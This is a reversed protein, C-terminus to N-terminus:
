SKVCTALFTRIQERTLGAQSLTVHVMQEDFEDRLNVFVREVSGRKRWLEAHKAKEKFVFGAERLREIVQKRSVTL